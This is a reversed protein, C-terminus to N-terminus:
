SSVSATMGTYISRRHHSTVLSPLRILFRELALPL